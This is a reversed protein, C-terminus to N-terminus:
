RTAGAAIGRRSVRSARRSASALPMPRPLAQSSNRESAKSSAPFATGAAAHAVPALSNGRRRARHCRWPKADRRALPGPDDCRHHEARDRRDHGRRDDIDGKRRQDGLEVDAVIRQLPDRGAKEARHRGRHQRGRPQDFRMALAAREDGRERDKEARGSSPTALQLGSASITERTSCPPAAPMRCGSAIIAKNSTNGGSRRPLAIPRKPRPMTSTGAIPGLMPPMSSSLKPQREIKKSGSGKQTAPRTSPQRKRGPGRPPPGPVRKSQTPNASSAAVSAASSLTGTTPCRAPQPDIGSATM